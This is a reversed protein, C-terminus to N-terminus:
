SEMFWKGPATCVRGGCATRCCQSEGECDCDSTCNESCLGADDIVPCLGTKQESILPTLFYDNKYREYLQFIPSSEAYGLM